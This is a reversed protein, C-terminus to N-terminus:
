KEASVTRTQYHEGPARDRYELQYTGDPRLWVQAYCDADGACELVLYGGRRLNLVACELDGGRPCREDPRHGPHAPSETVSVPASASAPLGCADILEFFLKEAFPDARKALVALLSERDAAFGAESAWASIRETAESADPVPLGFEAAIVPELVASWSVGSPSLGRVVAVDSDMVSAIAVPAGTVAVLKGLWRDDHNAPLGHHVQLTQWGGPRPWCMSMCDGHGEDCAPEEGFVSLSLLSDDSRALVFDGFFGM